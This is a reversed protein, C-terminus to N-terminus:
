EFELRAEQPFCPVQRMQPKSREAIVEKIREPEEELFRQFLVVFCISLLLAFFGLSTCFFFFRVCISRKKKKQM